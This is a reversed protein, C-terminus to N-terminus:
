NKQCHLQIICYKLNDCRHQHLNSELTSRLSWTAENPLATRTSLVFCVPPTATYMRDNKGEDSFPPSHGFDRGPHKERPDFGM